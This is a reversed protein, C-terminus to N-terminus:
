RWFCGQPKDDGLHPHVQTFSKQLDLALTTRCVAREWLDRWAEREPRRHSVCEQCARGKGCYDPSLLGALLLVQPEEKQRLIPSIKKRSVESALCGCPASCLRQSHTVSGRYATEKDTRHSKYSLRGQLNTAIKGLLYLVSLWLALM